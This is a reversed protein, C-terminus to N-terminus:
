ESRIANDSLMLNGLIQALDVIVDPTIWIRWYSQLFCGIIVICVQLYSPIWSIDFSIIPRNAVTFSSFISPFVPDSLLIVRRSIDRFHICTAVELGPVYYRQISLLQGKVYLSCSRKSIPVILLWRRWGIETGNLQQL